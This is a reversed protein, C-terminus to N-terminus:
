FKYKVAVQTQMATGTSGSRDKRQGWLIEGGIDIRPVPSFLLNMTARDTRDYADGAQFDANNVRVWSYVWTSRAKRSWWHQFSFYGSAGFPAWGGSSQPKAGNSFPSTRGGSSPWASTSAYSAQM